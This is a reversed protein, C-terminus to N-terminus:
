AYGVYILYGAILFMVIAAALRMWAKESTNWAELRKPSIGWYVLFTLIILPLVFILNYILLYIYATISGNTLLSIIGLYIGGTCPLEFLAVVVGLTMIALITGKKSKKEIFPKIKPSIRLIADRNNKTAFYDRLEILALTLIILGVAIYILGRIGTFQQIINFLGLGVGFYVLFVILSYLLGAKLARKRSGLNLLAVMLFILVGFACPNISDVIGAIIVALLGINEQQTKGKIELTLYQNPTTVYDKLTNIIPTDGLLYGYKGESEVVVLPVGGPLNLGQKYYQYTEYNTQTNLKEVNVNEISNVQELIGSEEVAACHTCGLSYFEYVNVEAASVIGILFVLTLLFLCGRKM